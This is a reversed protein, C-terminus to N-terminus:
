ENGCGVGPARLGTFLVRYRIYVLEGFWERRGCVFADGLSVVEVGGLGLIGKRVHVEAVVLMCYARISAVWVSPVALRWGDASLFQRRAGHSM